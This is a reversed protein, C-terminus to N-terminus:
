FQRKKLDILAACILLASYVAGQILVFGFGIDRPMDPYILWTTQGLLDLRPVVMSVGYMIGDLAEFFPTGQSAEAIGLLQGMLRALIYLGFVALASAAASSLVMAFFFSANAMIIFEVTISVLWLGYGGQGLIKPYIMLVGLGVALGIAVALISLALAHSFIFGTRTIPRSLLFEVDRADFSRRVYFVVFLILGMVGVFRLGGSAFVLSFQADEIIASTGLFVSLSSGVLIALVLAIVLRDRLAATLVYRVLPFSLM